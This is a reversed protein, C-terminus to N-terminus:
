AAGTGLSNKPRGRKKPPDKEGEDTVPTEGDEDEETKGSDQESGEEGQKPKEEGEGEGQKPKEEDKKGGDKEVPVPFYGPIKFFQDAIADEIEESIMGGEGRSFRVGNINESANPLKCIIKM